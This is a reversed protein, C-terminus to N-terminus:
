AVRADNSDRPARRADTGDPAPPVRLKHTPPSSYKKKPLLFFLAGDEGSPLPSIGGGFGGTFGGGGGGRPRWASAVALTALLLPLSCKM